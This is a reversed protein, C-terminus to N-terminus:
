RSRRHRGRTVSRDERETMEGAGNRQPSVIVPHWRPVNPVAAAPWALPTAHLRVHDRAEKGCELRRDRGDLRLQAGGGGAVVDPLIARDSDSFFTQESERRPSSPYCARGFAAFHLLGHLSSFRLTLTVRSHTKNPTSDQGTPRTSCTPGHKSPPPFRRRPLSIPAPSYSRHNGQLFPPTPVM